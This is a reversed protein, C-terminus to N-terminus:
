FHNYLYPSTMRGQVSSMRSHSHASVRHHMSLPNYVEYLTNHTISAADTNHNPIPQRAILLRLWRHKREAVEPYTQWRALKDKVYACATTVELDEMTTTESIGTRVEMDPGDIKGVIIRWLPHIPCPSSTTKHFAYNCLCLVCVVSSAM